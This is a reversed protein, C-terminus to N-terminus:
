SSFLTRAAASRHAGTDANCHARHRETHRVSESLQELAEWIEPQTNTWSGGSSSVTAVLHCVCVRVGSQDGVPDSRCSTGGLAMGLYGPPPPPLPPRVTLPSVSSFPSPTPSLILVPPINFSPFFLFFLFSFSFNQSHVRPPPLPARSRLYGNTGEAAQCALLALSSKLASLSDLAAPSWLGLSLALSPFLSTPPRHHFM